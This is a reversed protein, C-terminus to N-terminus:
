VPYRAKERSRRSCSGTSALESSKTNSLWISACIRQNPCPIPSTLQGVRYKESADDILKQRLTLYPKPQRFVASFNRKAFIPKTRHLSKGGFFYPAGEKSEDEPRLM